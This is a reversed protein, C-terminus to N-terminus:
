DGQRCVAQWVTALLAGLTAGLTNALADRLSFARELAVFIAQLMELVFGYASCAGIVRGMRRFPRRAHMNYGLVAAFALPLFGSVHIWHHWARIPDAGIASIARSPALTIGALGLAMGWMVVRWFIAPFGPQATTASRAM